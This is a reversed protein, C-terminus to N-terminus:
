LTTLIGLQLHLHAPKVTPTFIISPFCATTKFHTLHRATFLQAHFVCILLAFLVNVAAYSGCFQSPFRHWLKQKLTQQFVVALLSFRNWNQSSMMEHGQKILCCGTTLSQSTSTAAHRYAESLLFWHTLCSTTASNDCSWSFALSFFWGQISLFFYNRKFVLYFFLFSKFDQSKIKSRHELWDDNM